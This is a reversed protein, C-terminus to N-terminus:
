ITELAKKIRQVAEKLIKISATYSFRICRDEGFAIGPVAAVGSKLFIECLIISNKALVDGKNKQNRIRNYYNSFDPFLYFAGHPPTCQIDKIKSLAEYFFDRRERFANIMGNFKEPPSEIAKLAARQSITSPAHTMQGQFSVAAKIIPEPGALYGIRWGTMSFGKSFGNITITNALTKQSLSGFSLHGHKEYVMKEYIEDSLVMINKATVVEAIEQLEKKQYVAGTPNNPSCLILAKTKPTIAKEIQVASIKFGTKLSSKLFIPKADALKVIEPYSVWYPTPILVEDGPECIVQLTIFIGAKAGCTVMIQNAPYDL